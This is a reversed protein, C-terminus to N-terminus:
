WSYLKYYVPADRASGRTRDLRGDGDSDVLYWTPGNVPQVRVMALQGGVRYETVVDGNAETRIATEAGAPVPPATDVAACASLLLVSSILLTRM